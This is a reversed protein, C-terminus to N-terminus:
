KRVRCVRLAEVRCKFVEEEDKTANKGDPKLVLTGCLPSENKLCSDEFWYNKIVQGKVLFAFVILVYSM